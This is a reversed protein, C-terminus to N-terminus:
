YTGCMLAMSILWVQPLRAPPGSTMGTLWVYWIDVLGGGNMGM